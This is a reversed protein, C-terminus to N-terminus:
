AEAKSRMPSSSLMDQKHIIFETTIDTLSSALETLKMGTEHTHNMHEIQEKSNALMQETSALTEQSVSAFSEASQEIEPLALSILNCEEKMKELEENVKKIEEMLHDFTQKSQFSINANLQSKQLMHHFEESAKVSIEEMSQILRTIEETAGKSQDALKRVEGAVVAFGKGSEGARAAEIAANLALLKTQEAFQQIINVISAISLSHEKVTNITDTMTIFEKEFQNMSTIMHVIDQEGQSARYNMHESTRAITNMNSLMHHIKEKMEQFMGISKESSIATQEAGEKVTFISEKLENNFYLANESAGKLEDGTEHLAATTDYLQDLMMKMQGIMQNLSKILSSIEPVSTNLMIQESLDGDRVKRIVKQITSLPKTVSRVLLIIVISTILVSIISTILMFVALQNIPGLYDATPVALLYIGKLEPIKKFTLTYDSGQFEFHLIGKEQKRVSGLVNEPFALRSGESVTFPIVESQKLLFFHGSLGDQALQAAQLKITSNFKKLFEEEDNIFTFMLSQAIESMSFAERELRNETIRIATNRSKEYSVFGLMGTSMIFLSLISILLRSQLTWRKQKQKPHLKRKWKFLHTRKEIHIGYKWNM